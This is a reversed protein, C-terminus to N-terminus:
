PTTHWIRREVILEPLEMIASIKVTKWMKEFKDLLRFLAKACPFKLVWAFVRSIYKNM